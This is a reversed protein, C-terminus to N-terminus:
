VAVGATLEVAEGTRMSQDAAICIATAKLGDEYTALIGQNSGAKISDIFARDELAFINAEGAIKLPEQNPQTIVVDHGWGTFAAHMDTGWVTMSVGGGVSMCCGAYITGVSGNAFTLQVQSAEEIDFIEPRPRRGRVPTAYVRVVEGFLDRALDVTHTAQEIMQGGSKSKRVWWDYIRSDPQPGAGLWGGHLMVPKQQDLLKKVTKVSERYRTMYGVSTILGYKDVGEAVRTATPLDIAVPKEVFFPLKREIVLREAEGHAFPPLMIFVADPKAKDLMQKADTFIEGQGGVQVQREAATATNPDCWGVFEVDPFTKLGQDLHGKVIGGSGIFGLRVKGAM